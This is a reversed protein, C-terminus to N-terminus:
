YKGLGSESRDHKMFKIPSARNKDLGKMPSENSAGLNYEENSQYVGFKISDPEHPMMKKGFKDIGSRAIEFSM